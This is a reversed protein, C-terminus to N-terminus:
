CVSSERLQVETDDISLLDLLKEDYIELFSVNVLFDSDKM